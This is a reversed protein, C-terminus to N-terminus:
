TLTTYFNINRTLNMQYASFKMGMVSLDDSDFTGYSYVYFGHHLWSTSFVGTMYTSISQGRMVSKVTNDTSYKGGHVLITM